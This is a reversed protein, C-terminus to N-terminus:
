RNARRPRPHTTRASSPNDRARERLNPNVITAPATAPAPSLPAAGNHTHAPYRGHAGHRTPCGHTYTDFQQTIQDHQHTHCHTLDEPSATQKCETRHPSTSTHLVAEEHVKTVCGRACAGHESSIGIPRSPHGVYTSTSQWVHRAPFNTSFPGPSSM